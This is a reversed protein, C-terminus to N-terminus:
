YVRAKKLYRYQLALYFYVEEDCEDLEFNKLDDSAKRLYYICEWVDFRKHKLKKYFKEDAESLSTKFYHVYSDILNRLLSSFVKPYDAKYKEFIPILLKLEKTTNSFIEEILNKNPYMHIFNSVDIYANQVAYIVGEESTKNQCAFYLAVLPSTTIDLLNTPIGHHQAFAIFDGQDENLKYAIEKYFEDIMKMFPFPAASNWRFEYPRLASSMRTSYVEGEGRYYSVYDMRNIVEIYKSLNQIEIVKTKKM